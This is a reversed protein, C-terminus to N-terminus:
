QQCLLQTFLGALTRRKIGTSYFETKFQALGWGAMQLPNVAQNFPWAPM